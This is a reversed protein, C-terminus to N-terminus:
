QILTRNRIDFFRVGNRDKEEEIPIRHKRRIEVIIGVYLCKRFGINTIRWGQQHRFQSLPEVM